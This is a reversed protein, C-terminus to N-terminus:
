NISQLLMKSLEIPTSPLFLPFATQPLGRVRGLIGFAGIYWRNFRFLTIAMVANKQPSTLTLADMLM